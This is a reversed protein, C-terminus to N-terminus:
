LEMCVFCKSCLSQVLTNFDMTMQTFRYEVDDVSFPIKMNQPLNWDRAKYTWYLVLPHPSERFLMHMWKAVIIPSCKGYHYGFPDEYIDKSPLVTCSLLSTNLWEYIIPAMLIHRMSNRCPIFAETNDFSETTGIQQLQVCWCTGFLRLGLNTLSYNQIRFNWHESLTTQLYM